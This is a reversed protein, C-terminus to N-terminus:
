YCGAPACECGSGRWEDEAALPPKIKLAVMMQPVAQELQEALEEVEKAPISSGIFMKTAGIVADKDSLEVEAFQEKLRAEDVDVGVQALVQSLLGTFQHRQEEPKVEEAKPAVQAELHISVKARTASEPDIYKAFFQVVDDKTLARIEAVDKDVQYFNFYEGNIYGWLRSTESDLNKLKELRKTILSRKHGEFDEDSM